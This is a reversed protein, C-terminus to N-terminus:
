TGQSFVGLLAIKYELPGSAAQITIGGTGNALIHVIHSQSRVPGGNGTAQVLVERVMASGGVICLISALNANDIRRVDVQLIIIRNAYGGGWDIPSASAPGAVFSKTINSHTAGNHDKWMGTTELIMHGHDSRAHTLATGASGGSPPAAFKPTFTTGVIQYSGTEFDFDLEFGKATTPNYTDYNTDGAPGNQGVAVATIPSGAAPELRSIANKWYPLTKPPGVGRNTATPYPIPDTSVHTGGHPPIGGSGFRATDASNESITPFVTAVGDWSFTARLLYGLREMGAGPVGAGVAPTPAGGGGAVDLISREAVELKAIIRSPTTQAFTGPNVNTRNDTVDDLRVMLYIYFDHTTGPNPHLVAVDASAIFVVRGEVAFYQAPVTINITPATISLVTPLVGNISVTRKGVTLAELFTEQYSQPYSSLRNVDVIDVIDNNYVFVNDV